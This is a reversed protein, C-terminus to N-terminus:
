AAAREALRYLRRMADSKLVPEAETEGDVDLVLASAQGILAEASRGHTPYTVVVMQAALKAARLRRDIEDAIAQARTLETDLLLIEYNGTAYQALVDGSR